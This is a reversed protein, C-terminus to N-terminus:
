GRLMRPTMEILTPKGAAFARTIAPGLEALTAPKEALCGYARALSQFDPNILTVANPEIAKNVMDDRIQGLADNNWLLVPLSQKLEAATGLENVTYQFGYDGLMAVVPRQPLGAKAGIAAPLAFGLTGFGVPHIWCRPHEMPFIENGAYAIQTMDSAIITDPPLAQRLVSLIRRLDKRLDDENQTENAIHDAVFKANSQTRASVDMAPLHDLIMQLAPAADSLMAITSTHPKALSAPDVDVRIIKGPIQIALEWLDTESIETGVALIVDAKQLLRRVRQQPMRSGLCLPPSSPVIGKGAVTTLAIAGTREMIARAQVSADVAGGGFLLIPNKASALLTAAAKAQTADPQPKGPLGRAKWGDGAPQQLLDLPLELYCPRPRQSQMIAFASAVADQMDAPTAALWHHATVSAAANRQSLMEHLRGRGQVGDTIDLTTSMVFVPSSDSWAQGLPTLINLLGPGTITFCTGPKGTARAYGDAMFGAGQEHRPLIHTIGSRPLARYMEVNHVGPIGFITKVGWDELLGVLAEGASIEARM